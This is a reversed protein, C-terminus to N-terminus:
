CVHLLTNQYRDELNPNIARKLIRKIEDGYKIEEILKFFDEKNEPPEEEALLFVIYM